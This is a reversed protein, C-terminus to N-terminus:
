RGAPLDGCLPMVPEAEIPGLVRAQCALRTRSSLSLHYRLSLREKVTMATLNDGGADVRVRCTGCLTHAGCVHMVRVSNKLAAALVTGGLRAEVRRGALAIPVRERNSAVEMLRVAFRERVAPGRIAAPAPALARMRAALESETMEVTTM